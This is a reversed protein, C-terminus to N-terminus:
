VTESYGASTQQRLLAKAERLGEFRKEEEKFARTHVCRRAGNHEAPHRLHLMEHYMVYEIALPPVEPRDLYRSLVIANHSSDYHGLMTRSPRRSWGLMPRPMLGFFYRLNLDEFIAVLDYHEGRPDGLHKRGRIQRILDLSRRVDRRNLYNRYRESAAAPVPRRFLKSLLIEALAQHIGEPAGALSDAIRVKLRDEELRVQAGASAYRRFEIEIAPLPTGPKLEGFVRAYVHEPSLAREAAPPPVLAATEVQMGESHLM